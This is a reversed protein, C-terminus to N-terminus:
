FKKVMIRVLTAEPTKPSPWPSFRSAVSTRCTKRMSKMAPIDSLSDPLIWFLPKKVKPHTSLMWLFDHLFTLAYGRQVTGIINGGNDKIPTILFITATGTTKSVLVKSITTQGTMATQFYDRDSINQLEGSSRVVQNGDAATIVISNDGQLTDEVSVLWNQMVADDREEQPLSMYTVLDRNSAITKISSMMKEIEIMYSKEVVTAKKANISEADELAQSM